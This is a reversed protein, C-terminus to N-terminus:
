GNCIVSPSSLASPKNCAILCHTHSQATGHPVRAEPGLPEPRFVCASHCYEFPPDPCFLAVAAARHRFTEDPVSLFKPGLYHCYLCWFFFLIFSLIVFFFLVCPSPWLCYSLPFRGFSIINCIFLSLFLCLSSLFVVRFSPLFYHLLCWCCSIMVPFFSLYSCLFLAVFSSSLHFFLPSFSLSLSLFIFNVRYGAVFAWLPLLPIARSM